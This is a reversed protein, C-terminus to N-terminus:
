RTYAEFDQALTNISNDISVKKLIRPIADPYVRKRQSKHSSYAYEKRVGVVRKAAVSM